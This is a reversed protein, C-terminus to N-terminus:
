YYRRYAKLLEGPTCDPKDTYDKLMEKVFAANFKEDPGFSGKMIDWEYEKMADVFSKHSQLWKRAIKQKRRKEADKSKDRHKYGYAAYANQPCKYGYGQADDLIEGTNKDIVVFRKDPGCSLKKSLVVSIERKTQTSNQKSGASQGTKESDKKNNHELNTDATADQHVDQRDGQEPKSISDALAASDEPNDEPKKSISSAEPKKSM